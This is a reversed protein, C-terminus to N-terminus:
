DSSGDGAYGALEVYGRGISAGDRLVDAAGEWYRVTGTFEQDALVPVVDLPGDLGAIRLRWRAPYTDGRPNTWHDLVDISFEDPGLRRVAGDPPMVAAYAYPSREGDFRRMEYIMVDTGDDLQLAFWDWGEQGDDLASTSWERDLWAQGTVRREGNEDNLIGGVQIRPVSYYYSANGPERGKQSLGADGQLVPERLPQLDLALQFPGTDFSLQWREGDLGSLRWDELWVDGAPTGAGALGAAERAFREGSVHRAGTVDTVAAHGMWIHRTAWDSTRLAAEGSFAPALAVRFFTIHFGFRHGEEDDLNGTLYWWENRYGEHPGHDAPFRFERARDARLYGATDGGGLAESVRTVAQEQSPPPAPESGCGTVFGIAVVCGSLVRARLSM